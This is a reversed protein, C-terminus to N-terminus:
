VIDAQRAASTSTFARNELWEDIWDDRYRVARGAKAFKPGNGDGRMRELTRDSIGLKEAARITDLWVNGGRESAMQM